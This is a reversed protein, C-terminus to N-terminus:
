RRLTLPKQDRHPVFTWFGTAQKLRAYSLFLSLHKTKFTFGAKAPQRVQQLPGAAKQLLRAQFWRRVGPSSATAALRTWPMRKRSLCHTSEFHFPDLNITQWRWLRLASWALAREGVRCCGGLIHSKSRSVVPRT